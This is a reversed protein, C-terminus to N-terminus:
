RTENHAKVQRILDELAEIPSSGKGIWYTDSASDVKVVRMSGRFQGEEADPNVELSQGWFRM